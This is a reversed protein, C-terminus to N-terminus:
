PQCDWCAASTQGEHEPEYVSRHHRCTDGGRRRPERFGVSVSGEGEIRQRGRAGTSRGSAGLSKADALKPVPLNACTGRDITIEIRDSNDPALMVYHVAVGVRFYPVNSCYYQTLSLTLNNLNRKNNAFFTADKAAYTMEVVNDHATASQFIQHDNTSRTAVAEINRALKKAMEAVSMPPADTTQGPAEAIACAYAVVTMAAVLLVTGNPRFATIM